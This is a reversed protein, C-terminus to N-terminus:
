LHQPGCPGDSHYANGLRDCTFAFAPCSCVSPARCYRPSGAAALVHSTDTHGCGACLADARQVATERGIYVGGAREGMTPLRLPEGTPECAERLEVVTLAAGLMGVAHRLHDRVRILDLDAALDAGQDAALQALGVLDHLLPLRTVGADAVDAALRALDDLQDAPM